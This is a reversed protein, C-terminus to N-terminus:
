HLFGSPVDSRPTGSHNAVILSAGGLMMAIIAVILLWVLTTRSMFRERLGPSRITVPQLSPKGGVITWVAPASAFNGSGPAKTLVGATGHYTRLNRLYVAPNQGREFAEVIMNVSDYAYPMM